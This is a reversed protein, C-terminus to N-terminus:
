ENNELLGLAVLLAEDIDITRPDDEARLDPEIGRGEPSKGDGLYYMAVTFHFAGGDSLPQEQQISGKGFTQMGVIKAGWLKLTGAVVESASASSKNVLVVVKWDAFEGRQRTLYRGGEEPIKGGRGRAELILRNPEPAFLALLDLSARLYGGGNNRLDIILKKVGQRKWERLIPLVEQEVLKEKQFTIIKLYGIPSLKRSEAAQREVKARVIFIPLLKKSKRWVELFVKTGVPGRVLGTMEDVSLGKFPKMKDPQEGAATIIDGVLIKKSKDAPGDSIVRQVVLGNKEPELGVEVGVGSFGQREKKIKELIQPSIYFALQDEPFCSQIGFDQKLKFGYFAKDLVCEHFEILREKTIPYYSFRELMQFIELYGHVKSAPLENQAFTISPSSALSLILLLFIYLARFCRM